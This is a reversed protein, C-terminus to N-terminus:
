GGTYATGDPNLMVTMSNYGVFYYVGTEKHRLIKYHFRKEVVEFPYDADERFSVSLILIGLAIGVILLIFAYIMGHDNYHM